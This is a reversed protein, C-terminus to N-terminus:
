KALHRNWLTLMTWQYCGKTTLAIHPYKKLVTCRSEEESEGEHKTETPKGTYCTLRDGKQIRERFRAVEEPYLGGMVIREGFNRESM